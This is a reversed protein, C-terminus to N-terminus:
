RPRAPNGVVVAGTAVDRTVVSGAGIVAGAGVRRNPLVTAGAGIVCGDGIAVHGAVVCGPGFSVYDGVSGDHGLSTSRNVNVFAGVRTNSAIVAAANVITGEGLHATRAVVATPDVLAPFREYGDARLRAVLGRRADPAFVPVVVSARRDAAALDGARVIPTVPVPEPGEDLNDIFRVAPHGLRGLIEDVEAAYRSRVAWVLVEGDLPWRTV